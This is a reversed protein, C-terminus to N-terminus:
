KELSRTKGWFDFDGCDTCGTSTANEPISLYGFFHDHAIDRGKASITMM